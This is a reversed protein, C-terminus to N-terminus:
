LGPSARLVDDIIRLHHDTNVAMFRLAEPATLARFRPHGIVPPSPKALDLEKVKALSRELSSLAADIELGTVRAGVMRAPSRGRGRPIRGITLIVHGLINMGKPLPELNASLLGNAVSANVKIVHDLHQAVSWGSVHPLVEWLRAEPLTATAAIRVLQKEIRDISTLPNFM